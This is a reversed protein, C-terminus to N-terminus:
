RRPIRTRVSHLRAARVTVIRLKRLTVRRANTKPRVSSKKPSSRTTATKTRGVSRRKSRANSKACVTDWANIHKRLWSMTLWPQKQEEWLQQLEAKADLLGPDDVPIADHFEHKMLWRIMKDWVQDFTPPVEPWQIRTVGARVKHNRTLAARLPKSLEHTGVVILENCIPFLRKAEFQAQRKKESRLPGYYLYGPKRKDGAHRGLAIYKTTKPNFIFAKQKARTKRKGRVIAPGNSVVLRPRRTQYQPPRFRWTQDPDNTRQLATSLDLLMVPATKHIGLRRRVKAFFRGMTQKRRLNRRRRFGGLLWEGRSTKPDVVWVYAVWVNELIVDRLPDIFKRVDREHQQQKLRRYYEAELEEASLM